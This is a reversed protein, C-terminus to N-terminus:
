RLYVIVRVSTICVKEHSCISSRLRPVGIGLLALSQTIFDNIAPVLVAVSSNHVLSPELASLRPLCEIMWHYFSDGWIQQLVIAGVLGDGLEGPGGPVVAFLNRDDCPGRLNFLVYETGMQIMEELGNGFTNDDRRVLVLGPYYISANHLLIPMHGQSSILSLNRPAM